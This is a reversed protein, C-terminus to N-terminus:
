FDAETKLFNIDRTTRANDKYAKGVWSGFQQDIEDAGKFLADLFHFPTQVDSSLVKWWTLLPEKSRM